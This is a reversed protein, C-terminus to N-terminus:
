EPQSPEPFASPMEPIPEERYQKLILWSLIMLASGALTSLSQFVAGLPHVTIANGLFAPNLCAIWIVPITLASLVGFVLVYVGLDRPHPYLGSSSDVCVSRLDDLFLAALKFLHAFFFLAAPILAFLLGVAPVRFLQLIVELVSLGGLAIMLIRQIRCYNRLHRFGRSDAEGRTGIKRVMWLGYGLYLALLFRVLLIIWTLALSLGSHGDIRFYILATGQLIELLRFALTILFVLFIAKFTRDMAHWVIIERIKEGRFLNREEWGGAPLPTKATPDPSTGSVPDERTEPEESNLIRENEDTM